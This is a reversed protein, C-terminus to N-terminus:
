KTIEYIVLSIRFVKKAGESVPEWIDWFTGWLPDMFFTQGWIFYHFCGGLLTNGPMRTTSNQKNTTHRPGTHVTGGVVALIGRVTDM